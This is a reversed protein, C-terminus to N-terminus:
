FAVFEASVQRRVIMWDLKAPVATASLEARSGKDVLVVIALERSTTNPKALGIGLGIVGPIQLLREEYRDQIAKAAIVNSDALTLANTSEMADMACNGRAISLAPTQINNIPNSLLVLVDQIRNGVTNGSDEGAYLLAVPGPCGAKDEVILAGSDGGRSFRRIGSQIHVQNRFRALRNDLGGCKRSYGVLVTLNIIDVIGRTLGSTRGSKKVRMGLAAEAPRGPNGIELIFGTTRVKGPVVAAIAADVRNNSRRGFRLPVFKTLNAVIDGPLSSCNVDISGPQSIPDGFLGFNSKAAVHNNSLIYSNGNADRLMSGLTGGCCVIGDGGTSAFDETNGGSVGLKIPRPQRKKHNALEESVAVQTILFVLVLFLITKGCNRMLGGGIRAYTTRFYIHRTSHDDMDFEYLFVV